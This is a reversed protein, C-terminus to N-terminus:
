ALLASLRERRRLAIGAMGFGLLMMFWTAPEPVAATQANVTAFGVNAGTLNPAGFISTFAGAAEATLFLSTGSGITFLPVTGLASGNATADGSVLLASTDILFNGIQLSSSGASFLIGSGDHYILAAGSMDDISGGTIPFTFTPIGSGDTTVTATGTPTATLGLGALTPGATLTVDTAGGVVVSASAPSALSAAAFAVGALLVRNLKM